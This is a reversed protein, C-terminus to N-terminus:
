EVQSLAAILGQPDRLHPRHGASLPLPIGGWARVAAADWTVFRDETGWAVVAGPPLPPLGWRAIARLRAGIVAPSPLAAPWADDTDQRWESAARRAYLRRYLSEPLLPVLRGTIGCRRAASPPTPHPLTGILVLRARTHGGAVLARAVLGGFSAGVLTDAAALEARQDKLIAEIISDFRDQAGAPLAIPTAESLLARLGEFEREDGRLGPLLLSRGLIV